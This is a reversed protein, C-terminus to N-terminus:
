KDSMKLTLMHSALRVITALTVKEKQQTSAAPGNTNLSNTKRTDTLGIAIQASATQHHFM